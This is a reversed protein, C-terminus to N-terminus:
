KLWGKGYCLSPLGSSQDDNPELLSPSSLTGCDKRTRTCFLPGFQQHQPGPEGQELECGNPLLTVHCNRFLTIPVTEGPFPKSRICLPPYVLFQTERARRATFESPHNACDSGAGWGSFMMFYALAKWAHASGEENHTVPGRHGPGVM